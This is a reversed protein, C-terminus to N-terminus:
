SRSSSGSSILQPNQQLHRIVQSSVESVLQQKMLSITWVESVRRATRLTQEALDFYAQVADRAADPQQTFMQEFQQSTIDGPYSQQQQGQEQQKDQQTDAM